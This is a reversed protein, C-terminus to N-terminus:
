PYLRIKPIINAKIILERQHALGGCGEKFCQKRHVMFAIVFNNSGM